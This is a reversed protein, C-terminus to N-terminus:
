QQPQSRLATAWRGIYGDSLHEPHLQVYRLFWATLGDWDVLRGPKHLEWGIQELTAGGKLANRTMSTTVWNSEDDPGARAAPVVHDITPFLHWYAPHTEAMKWNRHFPFVDPCEASLVRLVPPFILREGGYRDIFGDRLFVATMQRATYRRASKAVPVFPYRALLQAAAGEPDGHELSECADVISFAEENSM